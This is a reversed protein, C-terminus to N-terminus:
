PAKPTPPLSPLDHLVDAAVSRVSRQNLYFASVVGLLLDLPDPQGVLYRILSILLALGVLLMTLVWGWRQRALLGVVGVLLLTALGLEIARTVTPNSVIPLGIGPVYEFGSLVLRAAHALQLAAVILLGVSWRQFLRPTSDPPVPVPAPPIAPTHVPERTTV